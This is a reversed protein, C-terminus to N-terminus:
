CFPDKVKLQLSSQIICYQLCVNCKLNCVCTYFYRAIHLKGYKLWMMRGIPIYMTPLSVFYKTFYFVLFLYDVMYRYFFVLLLSSVKSNNFQTVRLENKTKTSNKKKTAERESVLFLLIMWISRYTYKKSYLRSNM